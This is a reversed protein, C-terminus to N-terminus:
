PDTETPASGVGGIYWSAGYKNLFDPGKENLDVM